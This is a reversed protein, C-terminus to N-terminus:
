FKGVEITNELKLGSKEVENKGFEYRVKWSLVKSSRTKELQGQWSCADRPLGTVIYHCHCVQSLSVSSVFFRSVSTVTVIWFKSFRSLGTVTVGKDRFFRSSSTVTVSLFKFVHSLSTVHCVLSM